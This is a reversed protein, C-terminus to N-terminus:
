RAQASCKRVAESKTKGPSLTFDDQLKQRGGWFPDKATHILGTAQTEPGLRIRTHIGQM